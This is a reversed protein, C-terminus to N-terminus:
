LRLESFIVHLALLLVLLYTLKKHLDRDAKKFRLLGLVSLALLDALASYGSLYTYNWKFGSVLALYTHYFVFLMGFLSIPVHWKRLHKGSFAIFKRFLTFAKLEFEQHLIQLSKLHNLYKDIRGNVKLVRFTPLLLFSFVFINCATWGINNNLWYFPGTYVRFGHAMLYPEFSVSLLCFNLITLFTFRIRKKEQPNVILGSISDTPAIRQMLSISLLFMLFLSFFTIILPIRPYNSILLCSLCVASLSLEYVLRKM